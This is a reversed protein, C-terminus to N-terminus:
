DHEVEWERSVRPVSIYGEATTPASRLLKEREAEELIAEPRDSRPPTAQRDSSVDAGEAECLHSALTLLAHMDALLAPREEESISIRALAAIHNLDLETM